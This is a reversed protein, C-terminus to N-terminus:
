RLLLLQSQGNFKKSIKITGTSVVYMTEGDENEQFIIDGAVYSKEKIFECVMQQESFSLLKFLSINGLDCREEM